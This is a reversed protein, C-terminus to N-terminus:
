NDERTPAIRDDVVSITDDIGEVPTDCYACPVTVSIELCGNWGDYALGDHEQCYSRHCFDSCFVVEDVIDGHYENIYHLHAM